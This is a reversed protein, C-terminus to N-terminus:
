NQLLFEKNDFMNGLVCFFFNFRKARDSRRAERAGSQIFFKKASSWIVEGFHRSFEKIGVKWISRFSLGEDESSQM